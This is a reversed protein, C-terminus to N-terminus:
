PWDEDVALCVGCVEDCDLGYVCPLDVVLRGQAKAREVQQPSVWKAALRYEDQSLMVISGIGNRVSWSAPVPLERTM